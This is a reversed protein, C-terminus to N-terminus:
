PSQQFSVWVHDEDLNFARGISHPNVYVNGHQSHTRPNVSHTRAYELRDDIAPAAKPGSSDNGQDSAVACSGCTNGQLFEYGAGCQVCMPWDEVAKGAGQRRAQCM